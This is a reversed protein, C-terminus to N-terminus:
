GTVYQSQVLTLLSAQSPSAAATVQTMGAERAANAVAPSLCFARLRTMADQMQHHALLEAFHMVTRTSYFLVATNNQRLAEMAEPVLIQAPVTRYSVVRVVAIGYPALAAKFDVSIDNGSLYLLRTGPPLSEIMQSILRPANPASISVPFGLVQAIRAARAGVCHVPMDPQLQYHLAEHLGHPSTLLLGDAHAGILMEYDPILPEIRMVPACISEIGARQLAAQTQRAEPEPRTILVPFPMFPHRDHNKAVM